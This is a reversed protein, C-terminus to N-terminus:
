SLSQHLAMVMLSLHLGLLRMRHSIFDAVNFGRIFISHSICLIIQEFSCLAKLQKSVVSLLRFMFNGLESLVQLM